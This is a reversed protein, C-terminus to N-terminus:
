MAPRNYEIDSPVEYIQVPQTRLDSGVNDWHYKSKTLIPAIIDQNAFQQPDPINDYLSFAHDQQQHMGSLAQPLLETPTIAYEDEPNLQLRQLKRFADSHASESTSYGTAFSNFDFANSVDGTLPMPESSDGILGRTLQSMLHDEGFDTPINSSSGGGLPMSAPLQGSPLPLTGPPLGLSVSADEVTQAIKNWMSPEDQQHPGQVGWETQRNLRSRHRNGRGSLWNWLFYLVVLCSLTAIFKQVKSLNSWMTSIFSSTKKKDEILQSLPLNNVSKGKASIVTPIRPNSLKPLQSQISTKTDNEFDM